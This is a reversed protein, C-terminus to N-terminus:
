SPRVAELFRSMPAILQRGSLMAAEAADASGGTFRLSSANTCNALVARV